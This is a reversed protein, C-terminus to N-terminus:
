RSWKLCGMWRAALQDDRANVDAGRDLLIQAGEENALLAAYMLPTMYGPDPSDLVATADLLHTITEASPPTQCQKMAELLPSEHDRTRGSPDVGYALFTKVVASHRLHLAHIIATLADITGDQLGHM